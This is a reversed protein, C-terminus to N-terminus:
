ILSDKNKFWEQNIDDIYSLVEDKGKEELSSTIFYDPFEAWGDAFLQKKYSAIHNEIKTKAVKDSKTFIISFPIESEGLYRLFDLDITQADLRIDILVFAAVLQM